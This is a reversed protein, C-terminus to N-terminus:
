VRLVVPSGAHTQAYTNCVFLPHPSLTQIPQSIWHHHIPGPKKYVSKTPRRSIDNLPTIALMLAPWALLALLWWTKVAASLGAIHTARAVNTARYRTLAVGSTGKHILGKRSNRKPGSQTQGARTGVLALPQLSYLWGARTTVWGGGAGGGVRRCVWRYIDRANGLDYAAAKLAERFM